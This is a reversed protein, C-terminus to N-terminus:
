MRGYVPVLAGSTLANATSALYAITEAVQEVKPWLDVDADPMAARNAPTDMISPIVANVLINDGRVEDALAQTLNAVAAKSMSYALMGGSPQVAPRATVNVIRGGGTHRMWRTAERCCLFCTLANLRMMRDVDAASTAEVPAMTFGGVLHISAEIAGTEALSAYYRAVSAEDGLDVPDLRIRERDPCREVEAADVYPVACSRGDALLRAVVARGLAGTGGTIVIMRSTYRSM